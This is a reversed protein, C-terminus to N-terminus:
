NESGWELAAPHKIRIILQGKYPYMWGRAIVRRGEWQVPDVDGFYHLDDRSIRLAVRSRKAKQGKEDGLDLWISKRTQGVHEIVGTILRFGREHDTLQATTRPKYYDLSWVGRRATQAQQEAADYCSMLAVNPPVVIWFGMGQQLLRQQINVGAATYVHALLRGHRDLRERGFQVQLRRSPGILEDLAKRAAEALPEATHHKHDIEPTNISMFRLLRRDSLRVTDGDIVQSVTVTADAHQLACADALAQVSVLLWLIGTVV